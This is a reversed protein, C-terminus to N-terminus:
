TKSKLQKPFALAFKEFYARSEESVPYVYKHKGPVRRRVCDSKEVGDLDMSRWAYRGSYEKGSPAVFVEEMGSQGLYLANTAQYITGVHNQNMDAFTKVFGVDGHTKLYEKLGLSLLESAVSIGWDLMAFRRLEAGVMGSDGQCRSFSAVGVLRDGEVFGFSECGAPVTGLYHNRSLFEGAEFPSLVVIKLMGRREGTTKRKLVSRIEELFRKRGEQNKEARVYVCRSDVRISFERKRLEEAIKERSRVPSIAIASEYESGHGDGDYLGGLFSWFWPDAWVWEFKENLFDVWEGSSGRVNGCVVGDETALAPLILVSYMGASLYKGYKQVDKYKWSGTKEGRVVSLGFVVTACRAFEDLFAVDDPHIVMTAGARGVHADSCAAGLFYAFEESPSNWGPKLARAATGFEARRKQSIATASRGIEDAIQSSKKSVGMELVDVEEDSWSMRKKLKMSAAKHKISRVTRGLIMSLEEWDTGVYKERLLNLEEDTWRDSRSLGLSKAKNSIAVWSRNFRESMDEPSGSEFERKLEEIQEPTWGKAKGRNLGVRNAKARISERRRGFKEELIEWSSSSYLSKLDFVDQESWPEEKAM